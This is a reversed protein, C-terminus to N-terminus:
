NNQIKDKLNALNSQKTHNALKKRGACHLVQHIQDDVISITENIKNLEKVRAGGCTARIIKMKDIM